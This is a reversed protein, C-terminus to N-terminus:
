SKLCYNNYYYEDSHSAVLIFFSMLWLDAYFAYFVQDLIWFLGFTLFVLFLCDRTKVWRVYQRKIYVYLLFIFIFVGIVGTNVFLELYTNHAGHHSSIKKVINGPGYGILPSQFGLSICEQAIQYRTDEKVAIESRQKLTSNNYKELGYNIFFVIFFAMILFFVVRNNRERAYRIGFLSIFLPVQLLLVQRSATYLATIFALFVMAFLALRFLFGLKSKLIEGMIFVSITVYFTYYALTNANLKQDNLRDVGFDIVSLINNKAYWWAACLLVFYVVYLWPIIKNKSLAAISYCLIFSGLIRKMEMAALHSDEAFFSCFLIWSYLIVLLKMYINTRIVRYHSFSWLFSCPIAIYLAIPNLSNNLSVSASFIILIVSLIDGVRIRELLYKGRIM